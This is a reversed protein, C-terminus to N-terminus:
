ISWSHMEGLSYRISQVILEFTKEDIYSNRVISYLLSRNNIEINAKKLATLARLVKYRSIIQTGFRYKFEDIKYNEELYKILEADLMEKDIESSIHKIIVNEYLEANSIFGENMYDIFNTNFFNTKAEETNLKYGMKDKYVFAKIADERSESMIQRYYEDETTERKLKYLIQIADDVLSNLLTPNKKVCNSKKGHLLGLEILNDCKEDIKSFSLVSPPFNDLNKEDIIKYLKLYDINEKIKHRPTKLTKMNKQQNISVNFGLEKLYKENEIFEEYSIEKTKYPSDSYLNKNNAKKYARTQRQQEKRKSITNFWFSDNAFFLKRHEINNEVEIVREKIFNVDGYLLIKFLVKSNFKNLWGKEKFIELIEDIREINAKNKVLEENENVIDIISDLNYQKLLQKIEEISFTKKNKITDNYYKIAILVERKTEYDTTEKQIISEYLLKFDNENLLEKTNSNIKENLYEYEIVLTELEDLNEVPEINSIKEELNNKETTVKNCLNNIYNIQNETLDINLGNQYKAIMILKIDKFIKLQNEKGSRFLYGFLENLLDDELSLINKGNINKLFYDMNKIHNNYKETKNEQSLRNYEKKLKNLEKSIIKELKM